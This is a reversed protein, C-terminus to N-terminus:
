PRAMCTNMFSRVEAGTLGKRGVEQACDRVRLLRAGANGQAGDAAVPPAVPAAESRAGAALCREIFAKRVAGQMDRAAVVCGARRRGEGNDLPASRNMSRAGLPAAAPAGLGQICTLMFAQREEAPLTATQSACDAHRQGREGVLAPVAGDQGLCQRLYAARAEGQMGRSATACALIREQPPLGDGRPVPVAVQAPAPVPKVPRGPLVKDAKPAAPTAALARAKRALCDKMFAERPAGKMDGADRICDAMAMLRETAGPEAARSLPALLTVCGLALIVVRHM